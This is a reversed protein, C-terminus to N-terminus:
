PAMTTSESNNEKGTQVQRKEQESEVRQLCRSVYVSVDYVGVSM